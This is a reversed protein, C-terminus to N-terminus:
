CTRLLRIEGLIKMWNEHSWLCSESYNVRVPCGIEGKFWTERKELLYTVLALGWPQTQMYGALSYRWPTDRELQDRTVAHSLSVTSPVRWVLFDSCPPCFTRAEPDQRWAKCKSAECMAKVQWSHTLDCPLLLSSLLCVLEQMAPICVMGTNAALNIGASSGMTWNEWGGQSSRALHLHAVAVTVQAPWSKLGSYGSQTSSTSWTM